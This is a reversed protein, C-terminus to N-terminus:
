MEEIGTEKVFIRVIYEYSKVGYVTKYHNSGNVKIRQPAEDNKRMYINKIKNCIINKKETITRHFLTKDIGKNALQKQIDHRNLIEWVSERRKQKAKERRMNVRHQHEEKLDALEKKRLKKRSALLKERSALLKEGDALLKKGDAIEKEEKENLDKRSAIRAQARISDKVYRREKESDPTTKTKTKKKTKPQPPTNSGYRSKWRAQYKEVVSKGYELFIKILPGMKAKRFKKIRSGTVDEHNFFAFAANPTCAYLKRQKGGTKCPLAVKKKKMMTLVPSATKVGKIACLADTLSLFTGNHSRSRRINTYRLFDEENFHKSLEEFPLPTATQQSATAM